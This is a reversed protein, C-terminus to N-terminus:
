STLRFVESLEVLEAAQLTEVRFLIRCQAVIASAMSIGAIGLYLSREATIFPPFFQKELPTVLTEGSAATGYDARVWQKQAIIRRDTLDLLDTVLDSVTLAIGISDGEANLEGIAAPTIHFQVEDIVMALAQDRRGIFGMNTNLLAFTLTSAASETVRISAVNAFRDRIAQAM